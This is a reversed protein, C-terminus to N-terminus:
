RKSKAAALRRYKDELRDFVEDAPVGQRCVGQAVAAQLPEVALGAKMQMGSGYRALAESHITEWSVIADPDADDQALRLDLAAFFDDAVHYDGHEADKRTTGAM